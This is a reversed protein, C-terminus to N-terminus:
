QSLGKKGQEAISFEKLICYFRLIIVLKPGSPTRYSFNKPYIGFNPKGIPILILIRRILQIVTM